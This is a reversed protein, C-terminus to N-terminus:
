VRQSFTVLFLIKSLVLRKNKLERCVKEFFDFVISYMM